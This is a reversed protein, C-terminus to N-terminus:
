HKADKREKGSDAAEVEPELACAPELSDREALDVLSCM